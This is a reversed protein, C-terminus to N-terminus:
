QSQPRRLGFLNKQQAYLLAIFGPVLPLWFNVLRFVLATSLALSPNIDNLVLGAYIGSEFAGVGGPTPIVTASFVGLSLVLLATVLSISVGVSRAALWLAVTNGLTLVMSYGYARLVAQKHSKYYELSSGLDRLWQKAKKSGRSQWVIICICIASSALLAVGVTRSSLKITSVHSTGAVLVALVLLSFHGVLGLINNAGVVAAAEPITHKEHHLYAANAGIGGTGAPLIRNIFMAALQM